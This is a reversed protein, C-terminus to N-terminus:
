VFKSKIAWQENNSLGNGVLELDAVCKDRDSGSVRDRYEDCNLYLYNKVREFDISVKREQLKDISCEVCISILTLILILFKFFVKCNNDM